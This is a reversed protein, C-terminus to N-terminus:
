LFVHFCYIHFTNRSPPLLLNIRPNSSLVTNIGLWKACEMWVQYSVHCEFFVHRVTELCNGCLVCNLDDSSILIGKRHLKSRSSVSERLVRWAHIIVKSPVYKNWIKKYEAIRNEEQEGESIQQQLWEYVGKTKYIGELTRRWIWRDKVGQKVTYGLVGKGVGTKRGFLSKCVM